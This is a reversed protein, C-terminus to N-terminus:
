GAKRQKAAQLADLVSNFFPKEEEPKKTSPGPVGPTGASARLTRDERQNEQAKRAFNYRSMRTVFEDAVTKFPVGRRQADQAMQGVMAYNDDALFEYTKELENVIAADSQVRTQVTRRQADLDAAQNRKEQEDIFKNMRDLKDGIPKLEPPLQPAQRQRIAEYNAITEDYFRGADEDSALRAARERYKEDSLVKEVLGKHPALNTFVTEAEDRYRRLTELEAREAAFADTAPAATVGAVQTTLANDSPNV